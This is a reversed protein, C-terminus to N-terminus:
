AAIGMADVAATHSANWRSHDPQGPRWTECYYLWADDVDHPASLSRPNAWLDLRALAAALIDDVLLYNFIARAQFPVGRKVCIAKVFKTTAPNDILEEVTEIEFQWLGHAPGHIQQRTKLGSEQIAIAAVLVVAKVAGMEHPLLDLAPDIIQEILDKPSIPLPLPM